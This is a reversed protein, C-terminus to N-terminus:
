QPPTILRVPVPSSGTVPVPATANTGNGCGTVNLVTVNVDGDADVDNLFVQLFGVITVPVPAQGTTFTTGPTTDYIPVTVVSNSSTILSGQAVGVGTLPNASGAMVQFPFNPPTAGAPALFDQGNGIGPASQHNLCQVGNLTDNTTPGPNESLDVFNQNQVGCKYPTLQDCGAIAPEYNPSNTGPVSCGPVATSAFSAQGPLYELDPVTFGNVRGDNAQPTTNVVICAGGGIFRHCDPNIWFKEGIVGSGNALVGPSTISGDTPSVFTDCNTTCNPPGHLPDLNPVIWPKVCRPQVPFITGSLGNNQTASNSSNFVEAVATASVSSVSPGWIRAFFTPLNPRRVQVTVLPNVAFPDSLQSCDVFQGAGLGASYTVTVNSAATSIGGVLNLGAVAQAAQTAPSTPGGCIQQWSNTDNETDGTIGSMSIMRAATLAAADAARQAESRALYLTAVDISLAAMAIIAFMALAIFAITVGREQKRHAPFRPSRSLLPHKM